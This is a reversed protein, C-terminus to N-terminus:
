VLQGGALFMFSVGTSFAWSSTISVMWFMAPFLLLPGRKWLRLIRAAKNFLSLASVTGDSLHCFGVLFFFVFFRCKIKRTNWICVFVWQSLVEKRVPESLGCVNKWAYEHSGWKFLVTVYCLWAVFTIYGITELLMNKKSFIHRREKVHFTAMVKSSYSKFLLNLYIYKPVINMERNSMTPTCTKLLDFHGM